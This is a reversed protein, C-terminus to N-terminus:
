TVTTSLIEEIGGYTVVVADKLAEILVEDNIYDGMLAIFSNNKM